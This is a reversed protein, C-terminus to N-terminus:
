WAAELLVTYQSTPKSTGTYTSGSYKSYDAHLAVNMALDYIATLTIANDGNAGEAKGNKANRYAVGMSLVHPVVSYDAGITFAKRATIDGGYISGGALTPVPANAYQAYIGLENEGIAGHAQLDAFTMRTEVLTAVGLTAASDTILSEGGMVGFGTVLDWDGVSPTLAARFYRSSMDYSEISSGNGGMGHNPSWKTFNIYGMDNQAVFAFGTAAGTNTTDAGRDANYQVASTERRHEAWRNARM